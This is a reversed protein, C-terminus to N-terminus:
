QISFAEPVRLQSDLLLLATVEQPAHQRLMAAQCVSNGRVANFAFLRQARERCRISHAKLVLFRCFVGLQVITEALVSAAFNRLFHELTQPILAKLVHTRPLRKKWAFIAKRANKARQFTTHQCQLHTFAKQVLTPHSSDQAVITDV